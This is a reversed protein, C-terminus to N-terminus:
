RHARLRGAVLPIVIAAAIVHAIMLSVKSSTATAGAFIDPVFSAVTLGVAVVRFTRAPRQAFRNFAAAVLLGAAVCIVVMIACAGPGIEVVDAASGGISGIALHVGAGRLAAAYVETAGAALLTALAGTRLLAMRPRAIATDTSAALTATM